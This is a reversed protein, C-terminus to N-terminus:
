NKRRSIFFLRQRRRQGSKRRQVIGVKFDDRRIVARLIGRSDDQLFERAIMLPTAHHMHLFQWRAPQPFRVSQLLGILSRRSLPQQERIRIHPKRRIHQPARRAEYLFSAAPVCRRSAISTTSSM